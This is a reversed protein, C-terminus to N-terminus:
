HPVRLVQVGRFRAWSEMLITLKTYEESTDQTDIPLALACGRKKAEEIAELFAPEQKKLFNEVEKIQRERKNLISNQGKKRKQKRSEKSM